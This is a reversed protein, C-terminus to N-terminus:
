VSVCLKRFRQHFLFRTMIMVTVHRGVRGVRGGRGVAQAGTAAAVILEVAGLLVAAILGAAGLSMVTHRGTVKGVSILDHVPAKVLRALGEATGLVPLANQGIATFRTADVADVGLVEVGMPVPLAVPPAVDSKTAVNKVEPDIGVVEEELPVSQVVQADTPTRRLPPMTMPIDRLPCNM